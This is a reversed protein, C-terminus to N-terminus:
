ATRGQLLQLIVNVGLALALLIFGLAVALGFEGRSSELAIATTLTRTAGKINGGLMMAIGLEAIVRGFANVVAALLSVRAEWLISFALQGAGAGLTRATIGARKDVSQVSSITLAAIVPFILIFEGIIIATQTYLLNAAGLPGQRSFLSYLTLGVVVTPLAMLTNFFTTLFKKGRFNRSGIFFGIPIGTLAALVTAASSCKLSVWSIKLVEEDCTLILVLAQKLGDVLFSQSSM